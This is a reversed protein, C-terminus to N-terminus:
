THKVNQERIKHSLLQKKHKRKFNQAPFQCAAPWFQDVQMDSLNLWQTTLCGQAMM